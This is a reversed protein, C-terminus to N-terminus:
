GSLLFELFRKKLPDILLHPLYKKLDSRKIKDTGLGYNILQELKWVKFKEPYKALFKTDVSWNKM